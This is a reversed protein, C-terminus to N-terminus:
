ASAGAVRVVEAISTEGRRAKILGDLRLSRRGAADAIRELESQPALAAIAHRLAADVAVLEYIGQRGRYGTHQCPGCGVEQRWLPPTARLHTPLESDIVPLSSIARSCLPCIRRVLRQAMVALTAAVVLYPEIGMDVLRTFAALADNTHLTALVLHGTLASQIAIEATERDRIEGIMIIDPDHRLIARLARAFTYGIETQTQIQTIGPLQHEVPDEVTIVKRRRDNIAALAAYLTTSKGSGTPGTVLVLGSPVQMWEKLMLLHDPEMGLADLSLDAREKPLLRMVISEGHVAPIVSVRMDMETGSARLSIRGDQPLRREAIDLQSILKIRSAIAPYRDSTIDSRTHLVGDIRYRIECTREGPEIHIDSAREDIAQAFLSNVFAIVPADEALERYHEASLTQGIDPQGLRPLLREVEHPRIFHWHVVAGAAAMEVAEQVGTDLPDAAAAHLGTAPDEWVVCNLTFLREVTWALREVAPMIQERPIDSQAVLTYGTQEALVPLLSEESLAGLRVLIAGLRDGHEGQFALANELDRPTILGQALLLQGILVPAPDADPM